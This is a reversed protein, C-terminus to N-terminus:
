SVHTIILIVVSKKQQFQELMKEIFFLAYKKFTM